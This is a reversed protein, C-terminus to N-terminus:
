HLNNEQRFGIIKNLLKILLESNSKLKILFNPTRIGYFVFRNLRDIIIYLIKSGDMSHVFM